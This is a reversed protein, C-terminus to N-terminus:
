LEDEKKKKYVEKPYTARFTKMHKDCLYFMEGEADITINTAESKCYFCKKTKM